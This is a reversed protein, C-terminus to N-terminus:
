EKVCRVSFGNSTFANDESVNGDGKSFMIRFYALDSGSRYESATWWGGDYDAVYFDGYSDRYGGPLASFGFDDMGNGNGSWGSRSKLKTGATGGRGYDGTGGAAKALAGWEDRTPLHWGSPCASKAAAWTYLRGYKNCNSQIESSSLTKWEGDVYAEGGEGYCWSDATQINLNKKMWKM